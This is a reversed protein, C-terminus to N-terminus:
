IKFKRHCVGKRYTSHERCSRASNSRRPPPSKLLDILEDIHITLSMVFDRSGKQDIQNVVRIAESRLHAKKIDNSADLAQRRLINAKTHLRAKDTPSLALAKNIADLAVDLSGDNHQLEFVARQHLIFGIDGGLAVGEDFLERALDANAFIARLTAGHMLNEFADSDPAYDRNMGKMLRLLADYKQKQTSLVQEFVLEAIRQHRARYLHDRGYHDDSVFVVRELPRLLREKFEEFSVGGIRSLLGARLDAGLRQVTCVDLYLLQAEIPIIRNYEDFVIEEFSKGQTVEHLAVLIQRDLKQEIIEKCEADTKESLQGLAGAGRLKSILEEIEKSSLQSLEEEYIVYRDM